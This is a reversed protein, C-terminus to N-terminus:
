LSMCGQQGPQRRPSSRAGRCACQLGQRCGWAPLSQSPMEGPRWAAQCSWVHLRWASWLQELLYICCGTALGPRGGIRHLHQRHWREVDDVSAAVRAVGQRHLLEHDQRDPRGAECLGQLHACLHARRECHRVGPVRFNPLMAQFSVQAFTLYRYQRACTYWASFDMMLFFYPCSAVLTPSSPPKAGLMPELSSPRSRTFWAMATLGM